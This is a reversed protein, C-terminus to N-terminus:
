WLPSIKKPENAFPLCHITVAPYHLHTKFTKTYGTETTLVSFGGGGGGVGGTAILDLLNVITNGQIVSF